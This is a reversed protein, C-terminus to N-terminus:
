YIYIDVQIALKSHTLDMGHLRNVSKYGESTLDQLVIVSHSVFLCSPFPLLTTDRSCAKLVPIVHEYVIAENCFAPDRQLQRQTVYYESQRKLLLARRISKGLILM